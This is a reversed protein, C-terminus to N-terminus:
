KRNEGERPRPAAPSASGAGDAVLGVARILEAYFTFLNTRAQVQQSRASALTSQVTTLEVINTAGARYRALAAEYALEASRVLARSSLVQQAATRVNIYANWVDSVVVDSQLQLAARAADVDRRAARAANDLAGGQFVPIQIQLGAIYNPDNGPPITGDVNTTGASLITSLTPWRASEAQRLDAEKRRVFARVAALDPRRRQAEDILDDVSREFVDMPEEDIAAVDFPTNAPWGVSTALAGRGTDVNGRDRELALRAQEVNSQAQYLEAITAVGSLRRVEVAELSTEAERLNAESAIVQSKAGVYGHYARAVNRAVDQIVQSHNWNAGVLAQEASDVRGQRGGFDFLLYSLTINALGSTTRGPSGGGAIFGGTTTSAVASGRSVLGSASISAAPYYEGRAAGWAAAAARAQEWAQRTSPTNDLAVALLQPLTLERAVPQLDPPVGPQREGPIADGKDPKMRWPTGPSPSAYRFPRLEPYGAPGGGAERTLPSSCSAIAPGLALCM